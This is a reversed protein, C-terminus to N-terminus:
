LGLCHGAVSAPAVADPLRGQFQYKIFLWRVLPPPAFLLAREVLYRARDGLNMRGKFHTRKVALTNRLQERLGVSKAAGGHLRYRVLPEPHNAFVAGQGALRCWLDYDEARHFHRYGGVALVAERRMVVSPHALSCYRRMTELIAAHTLPYARYGLATGAENMIALQSGLISVEPRATLFAMQKQLRDSTAIDDADMRAVWESRALGIGQNLQDVLTTRDPNEIHRIRPDDISQLALAARSASPAEVILLEFDTLSQELVSRVAEPFYVPHPNLVPMLVSVIPRREDGHSTITAHELHQIPTAARM